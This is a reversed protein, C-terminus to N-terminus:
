KLLRRERGNWRYPQHIIGLSILLWFVYFKSLLLRWACSVCSIRGGLWEDAKASVTSGSFDLTVFCPPVNGSSDIQSVNLCLLFGFITCMGANFLMSLVSISVFALYISSLLSLSLVSFNNQLTDLSYSDPYNEPKTKNGNSQRRWENMWEKNRKNLAWLRRM